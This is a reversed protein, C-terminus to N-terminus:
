AFEKGSLLEKSHKIECLRHFQIYINKKLKWSPIIQMITKSIDTYTHAIYVGEQYCVVTLDSVRLRLSSSSCCLTREM